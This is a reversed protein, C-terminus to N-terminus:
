WRTDLCCNACNPSSIIRTSLLGIEEVTGIRLWGPDPDEGYRCFEGVRVPKNIYLIISGIFNAIANQAALALALGGM